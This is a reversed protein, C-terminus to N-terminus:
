PAAEDGAAANEVRYLHTRTRLYFSKGDVSPCAMFGGDLANRALVELKRGPKLVTTGGEQSFFYLRGDAYVPSAAYKGGIRENWVIEGNAADLCTVFSEDVALYLLGDVLLPSAYRGVGKNQSWVVHTDTVDGQGNPNIALLQRKTFGTVIFAMGQGVVPRPASSFDDYRVRWLEKGGRPEYGYTAKAGVSILQAKGDITAL